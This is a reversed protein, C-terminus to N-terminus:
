REPSFRGGQSPPSGRPFFELRAGPVDLRKGPVDGRAGGWSHGSESVVWHAGGTGKVKRAGEAKGEGWETKCHLKSGNEAEWARVPTELATM